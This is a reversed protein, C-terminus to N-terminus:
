LLEDKGIARYDERYDNNALKLNFCSVIIVHCGDDIFVM